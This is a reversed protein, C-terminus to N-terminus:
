RMLAGSHYISLLSFVPPPVRTWMIKSHRFSADHEQHVVFQFDRAPRKAL